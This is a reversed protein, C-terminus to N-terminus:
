CWNLFPYREPDLQYLDSNIRMKNVNDLNQFDPNNRLIKIAGDPNSKCGFYVGSIAEPSIRFLFIASLQESVCLRYVEGKLSADGVDELIEYGRPYAIRIRNDVLQDVAIAPDRACINELGDSKDCIVVDADSLKVISRHEKEYIWENAKTFLITRTFENWYHDIVNDPNAFEARKFDPRERRYMVREPFEYTDGHYKKGFRSHRGENELLSDSFFAKTCDFEVVMGRHEDSYHAWMLPNTFDETFSLIGLDDLDSKIFSAIDALESENPEFLEGGRREFLKNNNANVDHLQKSNFLGEFPDNLSMAPTARILPEKFFDSRLPMYKYIFRTM